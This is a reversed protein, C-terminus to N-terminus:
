VVTANNVSEIGLYILHESQDSWVRAKRLVKLEWFARRWVGKEVRWERYAESL